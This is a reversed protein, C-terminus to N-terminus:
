KILKLLIILSIIRGFGAERLANYKFRFMRAWAQEVQKTNGETEARHRWYAFHEALGAEHVKKEEEPLSTNFGVEQKKM